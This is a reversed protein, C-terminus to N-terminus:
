NRLLLPLYVLHQALAHICAPKTMTDVGHTGTVALSVTYVGTSAYIHSPAVCANSTGGDGFAWSCTDYDGTSLNTFNVTLPAVGSTPAATFDALPPQGPANVTIYNTRTLTDAGLLGDVTLSVTYVGTLTYIHSPAVCASSMGGDGFAWSCTDYNGTSLNTFNVM